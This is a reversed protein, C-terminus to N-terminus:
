DPMFELGADQGQAARLNFGVPRETFILSLANGDRRVLNLTGERLTFSGDFGTTKGSNIVRWQFTGNANLVLRIQLQSGVWAKWAGVHRPHAPHAQPAPGGMQRLAEQAADEASPGAEPAAATAPATPSIVTVPDSPTPPHPPALQPPAVPINEIIRPGVFRRGGYRAADASSVALTILVASFAVICLSFRPM